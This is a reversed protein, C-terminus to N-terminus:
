VERLGESPEIRAARLGGLVSALVASLLTLALAGIFHRPLLYCIAQRDALQSALMLNIVGEILLYLLIAFLWGLVATLLAQFAPFLIIGNSDFGVLRLVSLERRKRDVNAWLSAGLSLSFGVMGAVAITWFVIGLNRNVSEVTEIDAANTKVEQGENTLINGLTAVDDLTRAYLRYAPFARDEGTPEDGQWNLAPVARGDRFQEAAIVLDLSAFVESGSFAAGRAVDAVTLKLHVREHEGRYQRTLSGDIEAGATLSLKRAAAESLVVENLGSPKHPLRKLVPDGAGSPILEASVIHAATDSKLEITAALTRTRPVVFAVEPRARLTDFWAKSYHGSGVPRIELNRPEELLTQVMGAVIGFKLGFLVMLPALVAALGLIFCGSMRWEHSYDKLALAFVELLQTM